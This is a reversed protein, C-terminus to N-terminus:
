QDLGMKRLLDGFRPDSRLSDLEPDVKIFIMYISHEEYGKQLYEFAHDKDGLSAYLAAVNASSVHPDTQRKLKELIERAERQKGQTAYAIGLGVWTEGIGGSLQEAKQLEAVAEPLRGMARYTHGLYAHAFWFDPAIELTKKLQEIALDYQRSFFFNMGLYVNADLSLPDLEQGRKDEAIGEETRGMTMLLWGYQSHATADDPNLEIARRLEREANAWDYEYFHYVVGLQAHAQSLAPDLALAKECAEKAKPMSDRPSLFWDDAVQYYYALGTYPLAYNPDTKIAERFFELGKEGGERTAKASWYIGKLYLQYAEPNDTYRKTIKKQDEGSL